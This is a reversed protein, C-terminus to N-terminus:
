ISGSNGGGNAEDFKSQLWELQWKKRGIGLFWDRNEEKDFLKLAFRLLPGGNSTEPFEELMLMINDIDGNNYVSTVVSTPSQVATVLQGLSANIEDQVDSAKRKRRVRYRPTTSRGSARANADYDPYISDDDQSILLDEIGREGEDIIHNDEVVERDTIGQNCFKACKRDEKIKREWWENDALVTHRQDDWGLRTENFVLKECLRWEKKLNDRKNNLQTQNYSRSTKGKFTAIIKKWGERFFHTNPRNDSKSTRCM